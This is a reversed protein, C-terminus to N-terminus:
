APDVAVISNTAVVDIPERPCSLDAVFAGGAGAVLALGAAVDWSMIRSEAYAEASGRAVRVLSSAASGIMRVKGFRSMRTVQAAMAVEDDALFRSPLGTCLVSRTLMSEGSVRIASDGLFAGFEPGGWYEDGNTVDRLVGLVSRGDEVLAISIMAPGLSRAFNYSGDLPDVSWYASSSEPPSETSEESLIPLGTSRLQEVLHDHLAADAAIKVEREDLERGVIRGGDALRELAALASSAAKRAHVLLGDLDNM